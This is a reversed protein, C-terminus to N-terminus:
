GRNIASIIELLRHVPPRDAPERSRHVFRVVGSRDVIVDGGLQRADAAPFDPLRGRLAARLYFGVTRPSLWVRLWGGRGFGYAAHIDRRPDALIPWRHDAGEAYWTVRDISEFSIILVEVGLARLNERARWL